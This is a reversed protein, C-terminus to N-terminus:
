STHSTARWAPATFVNMFGNLNYCILANGQEPWVQFVQGVRFVYVNGIM